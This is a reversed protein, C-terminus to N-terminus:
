RNWKQFLRLSQENAIKRIDQDIVRQAINPMLLRTKYKQPRTWILVPTLNTKTLVPSPSPNNPRPKGPREQWDFRYVVAGVGGTKRGPAIMYNGGSGNGKKTQRRQKDILYQRAESGYGALGSKIQGKRGFQAGSTLRDIKAAKRLDVKTLGTSGRILANGQGANYNYAQLASIIRRVEWGQIDGSATKHAGAAVRLQTSGEPAYKQLLIESRKQRREGGKVQAYLVHAPSVKGDVSGRIGIEAKQITDGVIKAQKVFVSRIVFDTPNNFVRRMEEQLENQVNYAAQTLTVAMLKRTQIESFELKKALQEAEIKLSLM